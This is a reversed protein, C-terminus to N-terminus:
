FLSFRAKKARQCECFAHAMSGAEYAKYARWILYFKMGMPITEGWPSLINKNMWDYKNMVENVADDKLAKEVMDHLSSMPDMESSFITQGSVLTIEVAVLNNEFNLIQLTLVPGGIKKMLLGPESHHKWLVYDKQMDVCTYAYSRLGDTTFTTRLGVEIRCSEMKENMRPKCEAWFGNATMLGDTLKETAAPVMCYLWRLPLGEMEVSYISDFYICQSGVSLFLSATYM